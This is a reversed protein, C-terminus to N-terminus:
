IIRRKQQGLRRWKAHVRATLARIRAEHAVWFSASGALRRAKSARREEPAPAAAKPLALATRAASPARESGRALRELYAKARACYQASRLTMTQAGHGARYKMLARCLDGDALRWAQALYLVGYRINTAPEALEADSGRFGLMYATAPRIQMLGIEGFDGIRAPDHASEVYAVADAVDAPLASKQAEIRILDIFRGRGGLDARPTPAILSRWEDLKQAESQRPLIVIERSRFPEPEERSAAPPPAVAAGLRFSAACAGAAILVFIVRDLM